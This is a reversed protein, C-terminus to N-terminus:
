RRIIRISILVILIVEFAAVHIFISNALSSILVGILAGILLMLIENFWDTERSPIIYNYKLPIIDSKRENSTHRSIDENEELCSSFSENTGDLYRKKYQKDRSM